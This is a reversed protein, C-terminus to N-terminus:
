GDEGLRRVRPVGDGDDFRWVEVSVFLPSYRGSEAQLTRAEDSRPWRNSKVQILRLVPLYNDPQPDRRIAVLDFTGLSGAARTVAFGETELLDRAQHERRRGKAKCDM